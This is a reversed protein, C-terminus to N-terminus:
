PTLQVQKTAGTPNARRILIYASTPSPSLRLVRRNGQMKIGRFVSVQNATRSALCPYFPVDAYHRIIFLSQLSITRFM